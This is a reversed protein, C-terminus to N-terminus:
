RNVGPAPPPWVVRSGVPTTIPLRALIGSANLQPRVAATLQLSPCGGCVPVGLRVGRFNLPGPPPGQKFVRVEDFVGYNPLERKDRRGVIGGGDLLFM